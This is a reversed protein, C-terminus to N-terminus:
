DCKAGNTVATGPDLVQAGEYLCYTKVGELKKVVGGFIKVKGTVTKILDVTKASVKVEGTIVAITGVSEAVLCVSGRNVSVNSIVKSKAQVSGRNGSISFTAANGLRVNGNNNSIVVDRASDQHFAGKQNAINFDLNGPSFTRDLDLLNCYDCDSKPNGKTVTTPGDDSPPEEGPTQPGDEGPPNTVVPPFKPPKPNKPTDDGPPVSPTEPNDDGPTTVVPPTSGADDGTDVVGTGADSVKSSLDGDLSSYQVKSCNQFFSILFLSTILVSLKKM